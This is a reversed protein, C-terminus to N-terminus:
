CFLKPGPKAGNRESETWGDVSKESMTPLRGRAGGSGAAGGLHFFFEECHALFALM